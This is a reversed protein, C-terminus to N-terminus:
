NEVQFVELVSKFVYAVHKCESEAQLIVEDEGLSSIIRNSLLFEISFYYHTDWGM